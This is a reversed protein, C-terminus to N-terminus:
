MRTKIFRLAEAIVPVSIRSHGFQRLRRQEGGKHALRMQSGVQKERIFLYTRVAKSNGDKM